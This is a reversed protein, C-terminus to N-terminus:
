DEDEDLGALFDSVSKGADSPTIEAQRGELLNDLRQTEEDMAPAHEEMAHLLEQKRNERAARKRVATEYDEEFEPYGEMVSDRVFPDGLAADEVWLHVVAPDVARTRLMDGVDGLTRTHHTDKLYTFM